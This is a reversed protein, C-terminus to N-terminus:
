KTVTLIFPDGKRDRFREFEPNGSELEQVSIRPLPGAIPAEKQHLLRERFPKGDVMSTKPEERKPKQQQKQHSTQPPKVPPTPQQQTKPLKATAAAVFDPVGKDSKKKRRPLEPEEMPDLVHDEDEEVDEANMSQALAAVNSKVHEWEAETVAKGKALAMAAQAKHYYNVKTERDVSATGMRMLCVGLNTYTESTPSFKVASQFAKLSELQKGQGDFKIAQNTHAANPDDFSYGSSFGLLLSIVIHSLLYVVKM